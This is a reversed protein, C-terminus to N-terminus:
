EYGLEAWEKLQWRADGRVYESPDDLMARLYPIADVRDLNGLMEIADRRVSVEPDNLAELVVPYAAESHSYSLFLLVSSRVEHDPHNKLAIVDDLIDLTHKPAMRYLWYVAQRMVEPRDDFVYRKFLAYMRSFHADEGPDGPNLGAPYTLMMSLIALTRNVDAQDLQSLLFAVGQIHERWLLRAIDMYWSLATGRSPEEYEAKFLATLQGLSLTQLESRM